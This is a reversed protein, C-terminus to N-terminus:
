WIGGTYEYLVERGTNIAEKLQVVPMGSSAYRGSPPYQYDLQLSGAGIAVGKTEPLMWVAIATFLGVLGLINGVAADSLGGQVVFPSLAGTVRAVANVVSHGTTRLETPLLEPPMVVHCLKCEYLLATRGTTRLETPLLEPTCTWTVCSASMFFLRAGFAATVLLTSNWGRDSGFCLCWVCLGGLFYSCMQSPVRGWTDVTFIVITLGLFESTCSVFIAKYDFDVTDDADQPEAFIVTTVIITGYYLIGFGAWVMSLFFITRGLKPHRFLDLVSSTSPSTRAEHGGQHESVDRIRTGEPFLDMARSEDMGNQMAAHRLITVAEDMRGTTILWRPSEPVYICGSVFCPLSCFAVLLRWNDNLYQLSVYASGVVLLMGLTWFYNLALLYTGRHSAPLFEALTDYPITLGGIGCGVIIRTSVLTAYNVTFASLLGFVAIVTAALLFTPRRGWGDGLKGFFLTGIIEGFFVSSIMMATQADTLDWRVTLVTSLFSLLFVEMADAAFCLGAAVFIRYQFRGMGLHDVADEISIEVIRRGQLSASPSAQSSPQGDGIDVTSTKQYSTTM